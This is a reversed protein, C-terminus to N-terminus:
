CRVPAGLDGRGALIQRLTSAPMALTHGTEIELAYVVGAVRGDADLVPGGSSGPAAPATLQMSHIERGQSVATVYGVVEGDALEQRGGGPYGVITVRDGPSPDGEALTASRPVPADLRVIAIDQEFAATVFSAAVTRGDWTSVTVQVGGEVVHRNTVLVDDAIAFGSGTLLQGCGSSRVRLTLERAAREASTRRLPPATESGAPPESATVPGATRATTTVTPLETPAAAELELPPPEDLCGTALAAVAVLAAATRRIM